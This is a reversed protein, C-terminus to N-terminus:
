NRRISRDAAGGVGPGLSAGDGGHSGRRSAAHAVDLDGPMRYCVGLMAADLVHVLAPDANTVSSELSRALFYCLGASISSETADRCWSCSYGILLLFVLMWLDMTREFFQDICFGSVTGAARLQRDDNRLGCDGGGCDPRLQGHGARLSGARATGALAIRYIELVVFVALLM